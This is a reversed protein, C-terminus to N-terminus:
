TCHCIAVLSKKTVVEYPIYINFQQTTCRFNIYDQIDVIILLFKKLFASVVEALIQLFQQSHDSEPPFTTAECNQTAAM